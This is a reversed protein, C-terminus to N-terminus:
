FNLHHSERPVHCFVRPLANNRPLKRRYINEPTEEECLHRTHRGLVMSLANVTVFSGGSKSGSPENGNECSGAV